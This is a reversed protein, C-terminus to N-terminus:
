IRELENKKFINTINEADFRILCLNNLKEEREDLKEIARVIVSSFKEIGIYNINPNESALKTIFQGKGM